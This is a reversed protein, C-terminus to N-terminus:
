AIPGADGSREVAAQEPQNLALRAAALSLLAPALTPEIKLVAEFHPIAEREHGAMHEALALNLLLGPNNPVAQTLRKYIPIAEEFKGAAMLQKARHSELALDTSQFFFLVSLLATRGLFLM